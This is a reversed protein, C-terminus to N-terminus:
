SIICLPFIIQSIENLFRNHVTASGSNQRLMYASYPSIERSCIYIDYPAFIKKMITKICFCSYLVNCVWSNECTWLVHLIRVHVFTKCIISILLFEWFVLSVLQNAVFTSIHLHVWLSIRCSLFSANTFLMFLGKFYM